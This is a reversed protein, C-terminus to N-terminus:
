NFPDDDNKKSIMRQTRQGLSSVNYVIVATIAEAVALMPAQNQTSKLIKQLKKETVALREEALRLQEQAFAVDERNTTHHQHLKEYKKVRIANAQHALKRGLFRSLFVVGVLAIVAAIAVVWWPSFFFIRVYLTIGLILGVVLGITWAIARSLKKEAVQDVLLPMVVNSGYPTSARPLKALVHDGSYEYGKSGKKKFKMWKPM